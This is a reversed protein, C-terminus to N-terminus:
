IKYVLLFLQFYTLFIHQKDMLIYRSILIYWVFQTANVNWAIRNCLAKALINRTAQCDDSTFFFLCTLRCKRLHIVSLQNPLINWKGTFKCYFMKSVFSFSGIKLVNIRSFIYKNDHSTIPKITLGRNKHNSQVPIAKRNSFHSPPQKTIHRNKIKYIILIVLNM